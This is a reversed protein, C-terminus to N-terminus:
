QTRVPEVDDRGVEMPSPIPVIFRGGRRRYEAQQVLIEDLFNWAFLIVVDPQDELLREAPVIPIHSGPTFRGQKLLSRDVIYEIKEPGM